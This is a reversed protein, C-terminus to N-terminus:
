DFASFRAPQYDLGGTVPAGSSSGSSSSDSSSPARAASAGPMNTFDYSSSSSTARAAAAAADGNVNNVAFSGFSSGTGHMNTVSINTAPAGSLSGSSSSDSSSPARAASAGPLMNYGWILTTSPARENAGYMNNGTFGTGPAGDYSGGFSSGFSFGTAPATGQLNIASGVTVPAGSSSRFAFTTSPAGAASAGHMNTHGFSGEPAWAAVRPMSIATDRAIPAGFPRFSDETHSAWAAVPHM